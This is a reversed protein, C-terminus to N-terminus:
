VLPMRKHLFLFSPLALLVSEESDTQVHSRQISDLGDSNNDHCQRDTKGLWNTSGLTLKAM